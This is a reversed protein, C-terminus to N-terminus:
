SLENINAERKFGYKKANKSNIKTYWEAFVKNILIAFFTYFILGVFLVTGFSKIITNGFLFMIFSPVALMAFVDLMFSYSKNFGFKVSLPLKKGLAYEKKMNNLLYVSQLVGVIFSIAMAAFALDAIVIGPIAQLIIIFFLTALIMSLSIALGLHKFLVILIACGLVVILSMVVATLVTNAIADAKTIVKINERSFELDYKATNFQAAYSKAQALNQVSGSIFVSPENIVSSVEIQNFM